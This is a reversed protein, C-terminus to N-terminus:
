LEEFNANKDIALKKMKEFFEQGGEKVLKSFSSHDNTILKEPSDFELIEGFQLFMIKDYQIITNLRHAITLVTSDKFEKKILSQIIRDTKTDISATAEDMLLIKPRLIIARAICVLQRQGLSLNSGSQEVPYSLVSITSEFGRQSHTSLKLEEPDLPRNIDSKRDITSEISEWVQTKKLVEIIIDDTFEGFPDINSKITGQLLFPDQPILSISRRLYSLGLKDIRQGDILMIPEPEGEEAIDMEVLRLINLILSSKGSGTRGVIGVKEKDQILFSVGKLVRPLGERYRMIINKAEITGQTPWNQPPTPNHRDGEVQDPKPNSIEDIREVSAFCSSLESFNMLVFVVWDTISIVNTLAIAFLKKDYFLIDLSKSAAITLGTSLILMISLFDLLFFYYVQCGWEHYNANLLNALNKFFGKSIYESKGAAKVVINGNIYESLNSLMPSLCIMSVRRFNVSITALSRSVYGFIAAACIFLIIVPPTSVGVIILIMLIYLLNFLIHNLYNPLAEDLILMDKTARNMLVGIPTQDFFEMKYKLLGNVFRRNLHFCANGAGLSHIQGRLLIIIFSTSALILLVLPYAYSNLSPFADEAWYVLWFNIMMAIIAYLVYVTMLSIFIGRGYYKVYTFYSGFSSMGKRMGEKKTMKGLSKQKDETAEKKKTKFKDLETKIMELTLNHHTPQSSYKEDKVGVIGHEENIKEEITEQEKSISSAYEKYEKSIKIVSFPGKIIIEGNKMLIVEDVEHLLHAAHTVLLRTKGCLRKKMANYFIHTGVEADLASLSDDILYIEKNSYLARALNIRQKQGGSLNIGREGIEIQDGGNFTEIDDILRCDYVCQIYKEENYEEGFLINNKFTDNLLFASQPVYAIDGNRFVEGKKIHLQNLITM